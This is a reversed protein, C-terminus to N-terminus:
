KQRTLFEWTYKIGHSNNEHHALELLAAFLKHTKVVFYAFLLM